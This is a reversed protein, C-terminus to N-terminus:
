YDESQDQTIDTQIDTFTSYAEDELTPEIVFKRDPADINLLPRRVSKIGSPKPVNITDGNVLYSYGPDVSVAGSTNLDVRAGEVAVNGIAKINYKEGTYFYTNAKAEFRLDTNAYASVFGTNAYLHINETAAQVQINKKAYLNYSELYAEQRIAASKQSFIDGANMYIGGAVDLNYDGHVTTKLDGDVTLDCHGEINVKSSGKIIVNSKGEILIYDNKLVITYNDGQIKNVQKGTPGIELFTGTKHQLNVRESGPTDDMEFIHGGETEQVKNYPYKANYPTVPEEWDYGPILERNVYRSAVYTEAIDEARSTRPMDAQYANVPPPNIDSSANFGARSDPFTTPMGPMVGLLMPHQADGGDLFFGFVWSGELPPKYNIDYSGIVPIAWPLDETPVEDKSDPHIDFCRVRVRGMKRPDRRDEVVGMFWLLNRFGNEAM